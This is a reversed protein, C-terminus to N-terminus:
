APAVRGSAEASPRRPFLAAVSFSGPGTLALAAVVFALTLPYEMGGKTADFKGGHVTFSAVLMNIVLPLAAIRVGVGLLLALGGFFETCASLYAAFLPAPIQLGELMAAFGELGHGGFAGFLKQSGHFLFVCGSIARLLLLGADISRPHHGDNM